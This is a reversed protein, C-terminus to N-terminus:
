KIRANRICDAFEDARDKQKFRPALKMLLKKGDADCLAVGWRNDKGKDVRVIMLEGTKADSAQRGIFWGVGVAGAFVLAAILITYTTVEIM